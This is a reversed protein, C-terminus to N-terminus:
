KSPYWREILDQSRKLEDKWTDGGVVTPKLMIILETKKKSKSRSTFAEGLFPIDGLFPVKSVTEINESKM